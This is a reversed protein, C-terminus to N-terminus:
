LAGNEIGHWEEYRRVFWELNEALHEEATDIAVEAALPGTVFETAVKEGDRYIDMHLGEETVDHSMEEPGEPDHDYRVVVHRADDHYYELQVLFRTVRGRDTDIGVRESLPGPLPRPYKRDYERPEDSM